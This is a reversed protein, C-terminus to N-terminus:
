RAVMVISGPVQRSNTFKDMAPQLRALLAGNM